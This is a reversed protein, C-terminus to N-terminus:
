PISSPDSIIGKWWQNLLGGFFNAVSSCPHVRVFGFASLTKIKLWINKIKRWGHEDTAFPNLQTKPKENRLGVVPSFGSGGFGLVVSPGCFWNGKEGSRDARNEFLVGSGMPSPKSLRGNYRIAGGPFGGLQRDLGM